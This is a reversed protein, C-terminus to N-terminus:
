GRLMDHYVLFGFHVVRYFDWMPDGPRCELHKQAALCYQGVLKPTAPCSIRKSTPKTSPHGQRFQGTLRAVEENEYRVEITELYDKNPNVPHVYPTFTIETGDSFIVLGHGETDYLRVDSVTLNTM